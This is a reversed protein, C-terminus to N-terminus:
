IILTGEYYFNLKANQIFESLSTETTAKENELEFYCETPNIIGIKQLLFVFRKIRPSPNLGKLESFYSIQLSDTRTMNYLIKEEEKMINLEKASKIISSTNGTIINPYFIGNTFISKYEENINFFILTKENFQIANNSIPTIKGKFKEFNQKLYKTEFIEKALKYKSNNLNESQAFLTGFSAFFLILIIKKLNM